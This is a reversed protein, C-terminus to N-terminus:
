RAKARHYEEAARKLGEEIGFAPAFGLIRKAKANSFVYEVTSRRIRYFTLAPGNRNATALAIASLFFAAPMAILKPLRRPASRVGLSRYVLFAFDKWSIAEDGVVHIVEGSIKQNGVAKVLAQCADDVYVMSTRNEGKGIWGFAGKSAADFIRYTSTTDGPGFVYGLRLVCTSFGPSNRSLVQAEAAKKSAPYPHSVPYGLSEETSGDHRGFGLVSLSSVFIFQACGEARAAELLNETM